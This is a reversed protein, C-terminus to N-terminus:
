RLIMWNERETCESEQVVLIDPKYKLLQNVKKRFAMAFNWSIIRM